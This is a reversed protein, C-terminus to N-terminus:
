QGGLGPLAQEPLDVGGLSINAYITREVYEVEQENSTLTSAAREELRLSIRWCDPTYNLFFSNETLRRQFASEPKLDFTGAIGMSLTDSLEHSNSFGFTRAAAYEAGYPTVYDYENERFNVSAKNRASLGVKVGLGYEVVRHKQHHYRNFFNVGISPNPTLSLDTRLPLLPEGPDTENGKPPPGIAQFGENVKLFDYPQTLTLRGFVEAEGEQESRRALGTLRQATGLEAFAILQDLVEPSNPGIVRVVARELAAENPFERGQLRELRQVVVEEAGAQRLETLTRLTVKVSREYVRRKVLLQNELKLTALRRTYLGGGLPPAADRFEQSVDEVYEYKLQPLIRHKARSYYDNDLAFTRSIITDVALDGLSVNFSYEGSTEGSLGWVRYASLKKGAGVSVGLVGLSTRFRVGPNLVTGLGNINKESYFRTHTGALSLSFVSERSRWLTDAWRLEITPLSQLTTRDIANNLVAIENGAYIREQTASLSVSSNLFQRSLAFKFRQAYNPDPDETLEYEKQFQSDSYVLGSAILRTAEGLSQNHNFEFKFRDPHLDSQEAEEPSLSGAEQEPDRPDREEFRQGKIEGRMGETFAYQYDLRLGPGRREVWDYTVTLDQEPDIAWFYPLGLRYGLDFKRLSSRTISYEPPLFGSQRRTVTPWALYPFYFVPVGGVRLSTGLSSSFNEGYYNVESGRIEWVPSQPNCTTFTCGEALYHNEGIRTVSEATLYARNRSDFVTANYFQASGDSLQFELRDMVALIDGEVVRVYGEAVIKREQPQYRIETGEITLGEWSLTANRYLAIGTTPDVSYSQTRIQLNDTAGASAGPSPFASQAQLKSAPGLISLVSLLGVFLLHRFSQTM